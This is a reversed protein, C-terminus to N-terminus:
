RDQSIRYIVRPIEYNQRARREESRPQARGRFKGNGGQRDGRDMAQLPHQAKEAKCKLSM